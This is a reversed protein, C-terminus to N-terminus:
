GKAGPKPAAADEKKEGEATAEAAEGEAAAAPEEEIQVTPPAISAITFDRDTITPRVGEALKIHSIHVSDHIELGTLDVTFSDPISDAPCEVEIEHRVVNLVGGIKLGPSAEENIFHVPVEVRIRADKSIRQFDVHLLAESVPDFQADRPLVRVPTGDVSLNFLRAFFGPQHLAKVLARKEISVAVPAEGGGYVVGPVHGDRRSQRAAGKGSKPRAIGSLTGLEAM